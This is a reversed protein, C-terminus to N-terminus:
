MARAMRPRVARASIAAARSAPVIEDAFAAGVSSVVTGTGATVIVSTVTSPGLVTRTVVLTSM